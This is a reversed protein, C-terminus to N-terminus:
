QISRKNIIWREVNRIEKEIDEPDQGAMVRSCNFWWANSANFVDREYVYFDNDLKYADHFSWLLDHLDVYSWETTTRQLMNYPMRLDEIFIEFRMQLSNAEEKTLDHVFNLM